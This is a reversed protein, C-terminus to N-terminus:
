WIGMLSFMCRWRLRESLGPTSVDHVLWRGFVPVQPARPRWHLVCFTLHLRSYVGATGATASFVLSSSLAAVCGFSQLIFADGSKDYYAASHECLTSLCHPLSAPAASEGSEASCMQCAGNGSDSPLELSSVASSDSRRAASQKASRNLVAALAISSRRENM